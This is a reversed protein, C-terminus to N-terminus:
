QMWAIMIRRGDDALMTQPAYFDLGDDLSYVADYHFMHQNKDYSGM